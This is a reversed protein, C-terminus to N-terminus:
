SASPSDVSAESVGANVEAKLEAPVSSAPTVGLSTWLASQFDMAAQFMEAFSADAADNELAAMVAPDTEALKLMSEPAKWIAALKRVTKATAANSLIKVFDTLGSLDREGIRVQAGAIAGLDLGSFLPLGLEFRRTSPAAM